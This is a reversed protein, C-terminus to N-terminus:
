VKVGIVLIDDIQENQGKWTEFFEKLYEKQDALSKHNISILIDKFNKTMLKKSNQGGFQDAFGDSFLFFTDGKELDIVHNEFQQEDPTLGGISCKTAKYEILEQKNNIVWLPRNAGSYEITTKTDGEQIIPITCLSLDMGDRTANLNDGSQRLAGKVGLNLEKLIEGPQYSCDIADKLKETGIMSMFAGPVGHGTCDVAAFIVKKLDKAYKDSFFYFDGSVIDKSKYFIFYNKIYPDIESPPPLIANQIRKAYIISQLTEQNKEEILRSKEEIEGKQFNIEIAQKALLSNAKKKQIINRILFFSFLAIIFFGSLLYNFVKKREAMESERIKKEKNAVNLEKKSMETLYKEKFIKEKADKLQKEHMIGEMQQQHTIVKLSAIESARHEAELQKELIEKEKEIFLLAKIKKEQEFLALENSKKEAELKKALLENEKEKILAQQLDQEKKLIEIEKLKKESQMRLNDIELKKNSEMTSAVLLQTTSSIENLQKKFLHEYSGDASFEKKKKNFYIKNSPKNIIFGLLDKTAGTAINDSLSVKWDNLTYVTPDDISSTKTSILISNKLYGKKVFNIIYESQLNLKVTFSGDSASTQKSLPLNYNEIILEVDDLPKGNKTIVGSFILLSTKDNEASKSYSEDKDNYFTINDIWQHNNVKGEQKIKGKESYFKVKGNPEGNEFHVISKIKNTNTHYSKWTGSKLNNTFFGDEVIQNYKLLKNKIGKSDRGFYIWRGQKDGKEDIVNITDGLFLEFETKNKQANLQGLFTILFLLISFKLKM